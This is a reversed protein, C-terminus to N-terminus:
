YLAKFNITLIGNNTSESRLEYTGGKVTEQGAKQAINKSSVIEGIKTVMMKRTRFHDDEVKASLSGLGSLDEYTFSVVDLRKVTPAASSTGERYIEAQVEGKNNFLWNFSDNMALYLMGYDQATFTKTTGIHFPKGAHGIKAMLAGGPIGPVEPPWLASGEPGSWANVEPANSWSGHATINVRDGNEMFQGTNQWTKRSDVTFTEPEILDINLADDALIKANAKKSADYTKSPAILCGSLTLSLTLVTITTLKM